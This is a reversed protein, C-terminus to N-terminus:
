YVGDIFGKDSMDFCYLNMVTNPIIGVVSFLRKELTVEESV